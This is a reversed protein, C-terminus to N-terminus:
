IKKKNFFYKMKSQKESHRFINTNRKNNDPTSVETKTKQICEFNKNINYAIISDKNYKRLNCFCHIDSIKKKTIRNMKNKLSNTENQNSSPLNIMEKKIVNKRKNNIKQSIVKDPQDFNIKKFQINQIKSNNTSYHKQTKISNYDNIKKHNQVDDTSIKKNM